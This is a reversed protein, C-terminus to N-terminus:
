MLGCWVLLRWIGAGVGGTAAGAGAAKLTDVVEGPIKAADSVEPFCVVCVDMRM